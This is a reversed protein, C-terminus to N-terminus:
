RRTPSPRSCRSRRTPSRRPPERSSSRASAAIRGLAAARLRDLLQRGRAAIRAYRRRCTPDHSCTPTTCSAASASRRAGSRHRSLPVPFSSSSRAGPRAPEMRQAAALHLDGTTTSCTSAWTPRRRVPARLQRPDHRVGAAHRGGLQQDGAAGRVDGDAARAGGQDRQVAAREPDRDGGPRRLDAAARDGQRSFPAPRVRAVCIAGIGQDKWLMPAIAMSYPLRGAGGARMAGARRPREPRRRLPDCPTRPDGPAAPTRAVPGSVSQLADRASPWTRSWHAAGDDDVLLVGLEDGGFLRQCSQLIKEFVPQTDSVSSSIVQLVEATATQQELAGQDRQVPARERDRDGGPRRLDPAAEIQAETFTGPETRPVGIAGVPGTACCRCALISRYGGARALDRERPADGRTPSTVPAAVVRERASPVAGPRDPVRSRLAADGASAGHSRWWICRTAADLRSLASHGRVPWPARRYRRVGAARRRALERDGASGRGDRDAARAGGQDRQVPAREPDRDGGPRRLEAAAGGGQETFGGLQDRTLAISGIGHEGQMLPAM